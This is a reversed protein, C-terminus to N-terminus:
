SMLKAHPLPDQLQDSSWVLLQCWRHGLLGPLSGGVLESIATRIPETQLHAAGARVTSKAIGSNDKASGIVSRYLRASGSPQPPQARPQPCSVHQSRNAIPGPPIPM